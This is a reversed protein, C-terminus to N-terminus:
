GNEEEQRQIEAQIANKVAGPYIEGYRQIREKFHRAIEDMQAHIAERDDQTV